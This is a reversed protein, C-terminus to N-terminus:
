TYTGAQVTLPTAALSGLNALGGVDNWAAAAGTYYLKPTAGTPGQGNAGILDPSWLNRISANTIDPLLYAANGWDMWFFEVAGDFLVGGGDSEGFIGLNPQILQNVGLSSFTRTGSTSDFAGGSGASNALLTGVETAWNAGAAVSTFDVSIFHTRTVGVAPTFSPRMNCFTSNLVQFRISTTSPFWMRFTPNSDGLINASTTIVDPRFRIALVLKALGTELPPIFRSRATGGNDVAIFVASSITTTTWAHAIGGITATTTTETSNSASTTHRLQVYDWVDVTGPSSTWASANTGLHDDAIRYEGGVITIARGDEGSIVCNFDSTTLTSIAQSLLDTWEIFSPELTRNTTRNVHDIYNVNGFAGKGAYAAKPTYAAVVEAITTRAATHAAFVDVYPITAGDAGLNINGSAYRTNNPSINNTNLITEAINDLARTNGYAFSTVPAPSDLSRSVSISKGIGLAAAPDYVIAINSAVYNDRSAAISIGLPAGGSIIVNGVIRWRAYCIALPAIYPNDAIIMGQVTGRANGQVFINREIVVGVSDNQTPTSPSDDMFFQLFDSHPDGPDSTRSFPLTAFNDTIIWSYPISPASASQYDQYIRTFTNGVITWLGFSMNPKIANGFLNLECDRVEISGSVGSTSINARMANPLYSIMPNQGTWSVIKSRIGDGTINTFSSTGGTVLNTSVIQGASVTFTAEAGTVDDFIMSYTGDAMLDGVTPRRVDFSAIVGGATFVPLISAYEPYADSAADFTEDAVGRYNGALRCRLFRLHGVTGSFGIAAASYSVNNGAAWATTVIKLDECTFNGSDVFRLRDIVPKNLPDQAILRIAVAPNRSTLTRTTYNGPAVAIVKGSLTADSNGFVTDWTADSTITYDSPGPPTGSSGGTISGRVSSRVSSLVPSIISM